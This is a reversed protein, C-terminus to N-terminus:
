TSILIQIIRVRIHDIRLKFLEGVDIVPAHDDDIGIQLDDLVGIRDRLALGHDGLLDDLTEALFCRRVIIIDIM